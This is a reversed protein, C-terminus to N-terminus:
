WWEEARLAEWFIRVANQSTFVIWGYESLRTIAGELM